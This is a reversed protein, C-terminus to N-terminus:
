EHVLLTKQTIKQAFRFRIKPTKSQLKRIFGVQAILFSWFIIDKAEDLQFCSQPAGKKYIRVNPVHKEM